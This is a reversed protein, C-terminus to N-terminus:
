SNCFDAFPLSLQQQPPPPPEFGVAIIHQPSRLKVLRKCPKWYPAVIAKPDYKTSDIEVTIRPLVGSERTVAWEPPAEEVKKVLGRTLKLSSGKRTAYVIVDYPRIVNGLFDKVM